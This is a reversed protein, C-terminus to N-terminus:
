YLNGLIKKIKWWRFEKIRIGNLHGHNKVDELFEEKLNEENGPDLDIPYSIREIDINKNVNLLKPIDSTRATEEPYQCFKSFNTLAYEYRNIFGKKNELDLYENNNEKKIEYYYFKHTNTSEIKSFEVRQVFDKAIEFWKTLLDKKLKIKLQYKYRKEHLVSKVLNIIGLILGIIAILLTIIEVLSLDICM